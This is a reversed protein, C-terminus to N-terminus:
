WVLRSIAHALFWNSSNTSCVVTSFVIFVVFSQLAVLFRLYVLDLEVQYFFSNWASLFTQCYFLNVHQFNIATWSNMMRKLWNWGLSVTSFTFLIRSAPSFVTNRAQVSYTRWSWLLCLLPPSHTPNSFSADDLYFPVRQKQYQDINNLALMEVGNLSWESKLLM